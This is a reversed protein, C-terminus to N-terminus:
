SGACRLPSLAQGNVVKYQSKRIRWSAASALFGRMASCTFFTARRVSACLLRHAFARRRDATALDPNPLLFTCCHCRRVRARRLVPGLRPPSAPSFRYTEPEEKLRSDALVRGAAALGSLLARELGTNGALPARAGFADGAFLLPAGDLDVIAAEEPLANEARAYRWRKLDRELVTAPDFALARAAATALTAAVGEPPFRARGGGM